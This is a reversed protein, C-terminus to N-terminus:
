GQQPLLSKLDFDSDSLERLHMEVKVDQEVLKVIAGIEENRNILTAGIIEGDKILLHVMSGTDPTGRSIMMRDPGPMVDGIFGINMGFGHATYYSVLRFEQREGTMAAAAHRGQVQANVWTGCMIREGLILDNFEAVDGAAWVDPLNTELYENAWIGHGVELGAEKLWDASLCAGIGIIVMDCPIERGDKLVV